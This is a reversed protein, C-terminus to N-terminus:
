RRLQRQVAAIARFVDRLEDRRLPSLAAPDLCDDPPAGAALQQMHLAIRVELALELAESLSRADADSLVGEKAALRLRESTSGGVAGAVAGAWRGLEVIPGVAARRIDLRASRSGDAELVADGDFGTPPRYAIARHALAELVRGRVDKAIPLPGHAGGWLPRREVLVALALEGQDAGALWQEATRVVAQDPLGCRGLAEGVESSWGPPPPADCILAGRATSAPTMERRAQSGLAVWVLGKVPTRRAASALELVRVTLADFLASLVRTIELARLNSAHLDLLVAPLSRAVGAVADISQARAISRRTGFWSREQAAFLDAEEVVGILEGRRSVVPAHRVGRELMDFLVEGGLRSPPVTFVPTTMVASVPATLPIRGAVIRTRIDSDTLIGYSGGGLEVIASSAGLETMREAVEHISATPGCRVTPTRILEAVSRHGPAPPEVPYDRGRAAALVPGALAAPIRYCLTDERARAEFGPPLGSVMAEHGFMDGAGLTDLLQGGRIVDVAGSHIVRVFAVPEGNGALIVARAPYFEIQARSAVESLAEPALADFPARQALFRAIESLGADLAHEKVAGRDVAVTV